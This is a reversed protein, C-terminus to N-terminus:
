HPTPAHRPRPISRRRRELYQKLAVANNHAGDKAGFLLVVRGRRAAHRIPKWAEPHEDLEESYRRVFEHWREPDHGFWRRLGESPAVEKLWADLPLDVKRLGRPWLRDVLFRKGRRGAPADYVRHVEIAM